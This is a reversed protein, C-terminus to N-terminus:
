PRLFLGLGLVIASTLKAATRSIRGTENEVASILGALVRLTEDAQEALVNHREDTLDDAKQWAVIKTFDRM